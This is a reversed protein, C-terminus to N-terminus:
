HQSPIQYLKPIKAGASCQSYITTSLRIQQLPKDLIPYIYIFYVFDGWTSRTVGVWVVVVFLWGLSLMVHLLFLVM